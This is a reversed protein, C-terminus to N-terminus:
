DVKWSILEKVKDEPIKIWSGKWGPFKNGKIDRDKLFIDFTELEVKELAFWPLHIQFTYKYYENGPSYVLIGNEENLYPEFIIGERGIADEFNNYKDLEKQTYPCKWGMEDKVPVRLIKVKDGPKVNFVRQMKIYTETLEDSM